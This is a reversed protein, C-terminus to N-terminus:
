TLIVREFVVVVAVVLIFWQCHDIGEKQRHVLTSTVIKTTTIINFRASKSSVTAVCVRVRMYEHESASIREPARPSASVRPFPITFACILKAPCSCRRVWKSLRVVTKGENTLNRHGTAHFVFIIISVIKCLKDKMEKYQESRPRQGGERAHLTLNFLRCKHSEYKRYPMDGTENVASNRAAAVKRKKPRTTTTTTSSASM